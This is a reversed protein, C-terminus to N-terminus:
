SKRSSTCYTSLQKAADALKTRLSRVWKESEKQVAASAGASNSAKADATATATSASAAAAASSDSPPAKSDSRVGAQKQQEAALLAEFRGAVFDPHAELLTLM